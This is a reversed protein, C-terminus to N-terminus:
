SGGSKAHGNMRLGDGSKRLRGIGWQYFYAAPDISSDSKDGGIPRLRLDFAEHTRWLPFELANSLVRTHDPPYLCLWAAGSLQRARRVPWGLRICYRQGQALQAFYRGLQPHLPVLRPLKKGLPLDRWRIKRSFPNASSLRAITAKPVRCHFVWIAIRKCLRLPVPASADLGHRSSLALRFGRTM